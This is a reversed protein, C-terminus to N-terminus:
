TYFRVSSLYFFSGNGVGTSDASYYIGIYGVITVNSIDVTVTGSYDGSSKNVQYCAYFKGGSDVVGFKWFGGSNDKEFQIICTFDLKKYLSLNVQTALRFFINKQNVGMIIRSGDNSPTGANGYIVQMTPLGSGSWLLSAGLTVTYNTCNLIGTADMAVTGQVTGYKTTYTGVTLLKSFTVTRATATQQLLLTSGLYLYCVQNLSLSSDITVVINAGHKEVSTGEATGAVGCITNGKLIKNATIGLSSAPILIKEKSWDWTGWYGVAPIVEVNTGNTRFISKNKDSTDTVATQVASSRNPMTGTAGVSSGNTFTKGALVDGAGATGVKTANVGANYKNTGVTGVNEAMTAFPADEATAVGQGTLADAVAKKGDSVSKKLSEIEESVEAFKSTIVKNQIPNESAASLADDAMVSADVWNGDADQIQLKEAKYRIGHIGAEDTVQSDKHRGIELNIDKIQEPTPIAEPAIHLSIQSANEVRVNFRYSIGTVTKTAPPVYDPNENAASAAYLIEENKESDMVYLGITRVFYGTDLDTNNVAALIQVFTDNVVSVDSVPVTQKVDEISVLNELETDSYQHESTEMKTFTATATQAILRSTLNAGKKTIVLNM